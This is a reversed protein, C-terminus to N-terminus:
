GPRTHSDGTAGAAAGGRGRASADSPAPASSPLPQELSPSWNLRETLQRRLFRQLQMSLCWLASGRANYATCNSFTLWIDAACKNADGGYGGSKIAAAVTGLDM